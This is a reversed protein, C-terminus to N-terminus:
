QYALQNEDTPLINHEQLFLEPNDFYSRHLGNEAFLYEDRKPQEEQWYAAYESFQQGIDEGSISIIRPNQEDSIDITYTYTISQGKKRDKKSQYHQMALFVNDDKYGVIEAQSWRRQPAAFAAAQDYRRCLHNAIFDYGYNNLMFRMFIDDCYPSFLSCVYDYDAHKNKYVSFPLHLCHGKDCGLAFGAQEQGNDTYTGTRQYRIIGFWIGSNGEIVLLDRQLSNLEDYFSFVLESYAALETNEESTSPLCSSGPLLISVIIMLLVFVHYRSM